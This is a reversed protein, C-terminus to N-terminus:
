SLQQRHSLSHRHGYISTRTPTQLSGLPCPTPPSPSPELKDRAAKASNRKERGKVTRGTRGLLPRDGARLPTPPLPGRLLGAPSVGEGQGPWLLCMARLAGQRPTPATPTSPGPVSGLPHPQGRPPGDRRSEPNRARM